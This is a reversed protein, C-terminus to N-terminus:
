GYQLAEFWLKIFAAVDTWELGHPMKRLRRKECLSNFGHAGEPYRCRRFAARIADPIERWDGAGIGYIFLLRCQM